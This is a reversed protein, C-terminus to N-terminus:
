MNKRIFTCTTKISGCRVNLGQKVLRCRSIVVWYPLHGSCGQVHIKSITKNTRIEWSNHSSRKDRCFRDQIGAINLILLFQLIDRAREHVHESSCEMVDAM